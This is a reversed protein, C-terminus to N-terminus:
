PQARKRPAISERAPVADVIDNLTRFSRVGRVETEPFDSRWHGGRSEQRALAGATVLKAAALMNLLETGAAERELREIVELAAMLGNADRELGVHRTM